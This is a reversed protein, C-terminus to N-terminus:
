GTRRNRLIVRERGESDVDIGAGVRNDAAIDGVAMQGLGVSDADLFHHVEELVPVFRWLFVVESDM